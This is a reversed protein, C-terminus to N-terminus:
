KRDLNKAKRCSLTAQRHHCENQIRECPSNINVNNQELCKDAMQPRFEQNRTEKETSKAQPKEDSPSLLTQVKGHRHMEKVHDAAPDIVGM